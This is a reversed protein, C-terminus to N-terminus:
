KLGFHQHQVDDIGTRHRREIAQPQQRNGRVRRFLTAPQTMLRPELGPLQQLRFRGGPRVARLQRFQGRFEAEAGADPGGVMCATLTDGPLDAELSEVKTVKDQEPNIQIRSTATFMPQQLLTVILGVILFGALIALIAFRHNLAAYWSREIINIAEIDRRDQADLSNPVPLTQELKTM